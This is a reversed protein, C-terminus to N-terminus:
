VNFGKRGRDACRDLADVQALGEGILLNRRNARREVFPEHEKEFVLRQRRHLLSIERRAEARKVTVREIRALRVRWFDHDQRVVCRMAGVAVAPM